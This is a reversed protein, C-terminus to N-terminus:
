IYETGFIQESCYYTGTNQDPVLLPCFYSISNKYSHNIFVTM